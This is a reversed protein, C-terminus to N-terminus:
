LMSEKVCIMMMMMVFYLIVLSLLYKMMSECLVIKVVIEVSEILVQKWQLIQAEAEEDECLM